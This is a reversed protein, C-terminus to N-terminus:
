EKTETTSQKPVLLQAGPIWITHQVTERGHMDVRVQYRTVGFIMKPGAVIEGWRGAHHQGVALSNAIKVRTGIHEKNKLM